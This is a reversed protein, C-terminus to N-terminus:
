NDITYQMKKASRGSSVGKLTLTKLRFEYKGRFTKGICVRQTALGGAKEDSRSSVRPKFDSGHTEPFPVFHNTM